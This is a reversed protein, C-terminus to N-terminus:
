AIASLLKEPALVQRPGVAIIIAASLKGAAGGDDSHVAVFAFDNALDLESADIECVILNEDSGEAVCHDGAVYTYQAITKVDAAQKRYWGHRPTLVKSSGGAATKAQRLTITVDNAAAGVEAQWIVVAGRYHKLSIYDSTVAAATSTSVDIVQCIQMKNLFEHKM